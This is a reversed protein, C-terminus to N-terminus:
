QVKSTVTLAQPQGDVIPFPSGPVASLAGTTENIAYASVSYGSGNFFPGAVYLFKGSPDVVLSTPVVQASFPFGALMSLAGTSTNISFGSIDSFNALYLFRGLPDTGWRIPPDGASGGTAVPSAPVPNLAGTGPTISFAWVDFPGNGSNEPNSAVYVFKGFPDVAVAQAFILPSMPLSVPSGTVPQLIGLSNISFSCVAGNSNSVFLFAATPDTVVGTTLGDPNLCSAEAIPTLAGTAADISLESINNNNGDGGFDATYLFKGTSDISLSVPMSGATFPSGPVAKIAGTSPAIAFGSIVKAPVTNDINSAEYLFRSSPDLTVSTPQAGGEFPSGQVPTLSGTNPDVSFVSINGMTLSVDISNAVYLYSPTGNIIFGVSNSTGSDAASAPNVVTIQAVGVAAIDAATITATVQTDSVETTMRNGGDWNVISAAVFGKGNVTITFDAGGAPANLPTISSIIPTTNSNSGGSSGGSGGGSSCGGTSILIAASVLMLYPRSTMLCAGWYAKQDVGSNGITSEIKQAFVYM